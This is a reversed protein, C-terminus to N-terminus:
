KIDQHLLYKKLNLYHLLCSFTCGKIDQHLLYKLNLYHLLCSFTYGCSQLTMKQGYLIRSEMLGAVKIVSCVIYCKYNALVANEPRTVSVFVNRGAAICM